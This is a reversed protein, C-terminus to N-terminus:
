TGARGSPSPKPSNRSLPPRPETPQITADRVSPRTSAGLPRAFFVAVDAPDVRTPDYLSVDLGCWVFGLHEYFDIAPANNAQTEVWVCRMGAARSPGLSAEVLARGVGRGRMGRDVYVHELRARRNWREYSAAALGVVAGASVAVRCWAARAIGDAEDQLDYRRVAAPAAAVSELVFSRREARIRYGRPSEWATDIALLAARDAPWELPRLSIV